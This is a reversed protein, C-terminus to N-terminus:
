LAALASYLERAAAEALELSRLSFSEDPAHFADDPLAFGSVITPLGRAAMDAVVPISGGLRALVPAVGCARELAQAALTIAPGGPEFLVPEARLSDLTVTVGPATAGAVLGRLVQEIREASQGAALRMTVTATASAPIVTRPEGGAIANVDLAPEAGTRRHFQAGAEPDLPTAGAEALLREGPPLRAWSAVEAADPARVGERLEARLLGDAGARLPALVAILEHLANRATGGYIGSHLSRTGTRVEVQLQVLGRLGITIQPTDPAAMISDFVIAADAGREDARLWQSVSHGAIEEEGELLVRVTVPLAGARALECAVHLLPLFNGKDDAAGRAYLRGGRIEPAFPPSSWRELPGPGQVDYHGYILVTPAGAPGALEGVLLPHGEGIHLIESSGGAGAIREAAWQAARLLEAPDGEGTSVSPIALWDELEQLLAAAM